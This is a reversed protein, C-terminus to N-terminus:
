KKPPKNRRFLMTGGVGLIFVIVAAGIAFPERGASGSAALALIHM